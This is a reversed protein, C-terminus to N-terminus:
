GQKRRIRKKSGLTYLSHVPQTPQAKQVELRKQEGDDEKFSPGHTLLSPSDALRWERWSAFDERPKLNIHCGISGALSHILETIEAPNLLCWMHEGADGRMSIEIVGAGANGVTVSRARSFDGKVRKIEQELYLTEKLYEIEKRKEDLSMDKM